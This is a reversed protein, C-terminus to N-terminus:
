KFTTTGSPIYGFTFNPSEDANLLCKSANQLSFCTKCVPTAKSAGSGKIFGPRGWLSCILNDM